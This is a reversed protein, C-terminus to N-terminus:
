TKEGTYFDITNKPYRVKPYIKVIKEGIMKDGYKVTFGVCCTIPYDDAQEHLMRNITEVINSEWCAYFDPWFGPMSPIGPMTKNEKILLNM